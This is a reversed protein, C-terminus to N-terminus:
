LRFGVFPGVSTAQDYAKFLSARIGMSISSNPISYEYEGSLMFGSISGKSDQIPWQTQPTQTEHSIVPFSRRIKYFSFSYGGGIKLAHTESKLPLVYVNFDLTTAKTYEKATETRPNGSMNIHRVGFGAEFRHTLPKVFEAGVSLGNLKPFDHAYATSLKITGTTEAGDFQAQSRIAILILAFFLSRKM